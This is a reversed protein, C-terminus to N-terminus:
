FDSPNVGFKERFAKAFYSLNNFGVDFAIESVNGAKKKLLQAARNLRYNRIFEGPALGTLAKLKRHLQVRSMATKEALRNLDFEPDSINKEIIDMVQALFKEDSSVAHSERPKIMWETRFKDWLKRRQLILNDMRAKLETADFPKVLYDDAGVGLGELKDKQEAKATLLIVPIHSIRQDSKVKQVLVSGEMKPMMQDSIILDPVTELAKELGEVGDSAEAIKYSGNLHMRIYKRMDENDEILLILPLEQVDQEDKGDRADEGSRVDEVDLAEIDEKGAKVEAKKDTVPESLQEPTYSEKNVPISMTFTSGVEPISEIGITGHHLEVLEKTLALGIGSGEFEHTGKTDVQYFRDFVKQLNSEDIGIGSDTVRVTMRVGNSAMALTVSGGEPTFKMANSLLNTICKEVADGDVWGYEEREPVEIKYRIDKKRAMTEFAAGIGKVLDCLNTQEVSLKLQGAEIKSLDLLQNVLQLLRSSNRVILRANEKPSGEESLIRRAPGEILTLPTRFEHSINAFFRSKMQDLERLKEAEIHELEADHKLRQRNLEYRRVGYLLSVFLFGYVSYAWRTKWWPPTIIVRISAGEENWVGDNNSGKVRFVYEGPPVNTYYAINRNGTRIWDEDFGNLRYAYQNNEPVTYDLAAFHLSFDNHDYSLEIKESYNIEKELLSNKQPKISRNEVRLDTFVIKPIRPNDRISDPHFLVFGNSGAGFVMRGDKLKRYSHSLGYQQQSTISFDCGDLATYLSISKLPVNYKVIGKDTALWLNKKDDELIGIVSFLEEDVNPCVSIISDNDRSYHILGRDTGLWFKRESDEYITYVFSKIGVKKEFKNMMGNYKCLGPPNQTSVWFDHNKDEYFDVIWSGTLGSNSGIQFWKKASINLIGNSTGFWLTGNKQELMNTIFPQVVIDTEPYSTKLDWTKASENYLRLEQGFTWLKNRSDQYLNVIWPSLSGQDYNRCHGTNLDMLSIGGGFASIWLRGDPADAFSSIEGKMLSAPNNPEHRYQSFKKAWRAIKLVGHDTGFWVNGSRDVYITKAYDDSVLSSSSEYYYYPQFRLNSKDFLRIGNRYTGVWLYQLSDELISVVNGLGIKDTFFQQEDQIWNYKLIGGQAAVWVDTKSDVFIGNKLNGTLSNNKSEDHEFVKYGLTKRNLRILISPPDYYLLWLHSGDLALKWVIRDGVGVHVKSFEHRICDYKTLGNTTGIWLVGDSDAVMSKIYGCPGNVGSPDIPFRHFSETQPDFKHLSGAAVWLNGQKDETIAEIWDQELTTTDGNHNRYVRFTRGDFRNLGRQTGFWMFGQRDQYITWVDNHSLGQATTIRDFRFSLSQCLVTSMSLVVALLSSLLIKVAFLARTDM